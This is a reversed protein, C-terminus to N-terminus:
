FTTHMRESYRQSSKPIRVTDRPSGHEDVRLPSGEGALGDAFQQEDSDVTFCCRFFFRGQLGPINQLTALVTYKRKLSSYWVVM